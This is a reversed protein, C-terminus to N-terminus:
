EETTICKFISHNTDDSKWKYKIYGIKEPTKKIIRNALVVKSKWHRYSELIADTSFNSPFFNCSVNTEGVFPLGVSYIAYNTIIFRDHPINKSKKKSTYVHLSIKEGFYDLIQNFKKEFLANNDINETIIDIEFSRKLDSSIVQSLFQILNSIKQVNSNGDDFLYRDFIILGYCPHKIYESQYIKEDTDVNSFTQELYFPVRLFEQGLVITGSSKSSAECNTYDEDTFYCSSSEPCDHKSKNGQITSNMQCSHKKIKTHLIFDKANDFTGLTKCHAQQLTEISIDSYINSALLLDKIRQISMKKNEIEADSIYLGAKEFKLYESHFIDFFAEAVYITPHM